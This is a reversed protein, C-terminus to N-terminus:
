EDFFCRGLLDVDNEANTSLPDTKFICPPTETLRHAQHIFSPATPHLSLAACVCYTSGWQQMSHCNLSDMAAFHHHPRHALLTILTVMAMM